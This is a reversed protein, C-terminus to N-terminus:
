KCKYYLITVLIYFVLCVPAVMNNETFVLIYVYAKEEWCEHTCVGCYIHTNQQCWHKLFYVTSSLSPAQPVVLPVEM